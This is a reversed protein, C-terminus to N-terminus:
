TVAVASFCLPQTVAKALTLLDNMWGDVTTTQLKWVSMVLRSTM